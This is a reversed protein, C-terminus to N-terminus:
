WETKNLSRMMAAAQSLMNQERMIRRLEAYFAEM